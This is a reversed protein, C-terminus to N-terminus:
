DRLEHVDAISDCIYYKLLAWYALIQLIALDISKRLLVFIFVYMRIGKYRDM